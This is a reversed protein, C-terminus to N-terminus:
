AAYVALEPHALKAGGFRLHGQTYINKRHIDSYIRMAVDGSVLDTAVRMNNAVTLLARHPETLNFVLPNRLEADWEPHAIIIIGRWTLTKIGDIVFSNAQETGFAELYEQYNNAVSQTCHIEHMNLSAQLGQLVLTRNNWLGKFIDVSEGSSLASGSGASIQTLRGALVDADINPFLGQKLADDVIYFNESGSVTITLGPKAFSALLFLDNQIGVAVQQAMAKQLAKDAATSGPEYLNNGEGTLVAEMCTDFVEDKCQTLEVEKRQVAIERLTLAMSGKASFTCGSNNKLFKSPAGLFYMTAKDKVGRMVKFTSNFVNDSVFVPKLILENVQQSTLDWSMGGDTKTAGM